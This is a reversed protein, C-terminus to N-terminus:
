IWSSLWMRSLWDQYPILAGTWVTYFYAASLLVVFAVILALLALADQVPSALGPWAPDGEHASVPPSSSWAALSTDPKVQGWCVGIAWALMLAVFPAFAVTYFTFMTRDPYAFWPVYMSLYGCLVLGIRWDGWRAVVWLALVLAPVALWWLLPNGLAVVNRVCEGGSCTGAFRDYYFSTPRLQFLWGLPHSQYNHPTSLGNHFEWVQVHYRWLDSLVSWPGTSPGGAAASAGHGWARPHLMWGTWSAIYVLVATPVMAVFAVPVDTVLAGRAARPHGLRRRESWERLAVFLGLVALAYIGSWKVSCALGLAVGAVVLWWRPGSRPGFGIPAGASEEVWAGMRRALRPGAMRQDKVVALFTALVFTSLFIDLLSTRSLVLHIGDTALFLGALATVAPSRFLNWALRCVLFVGITGAVVASIRWGVPNDAGLAQMGVGILWKGTPPHVIYSGQPSLMSFDGRAFAADSGAPWTGEYGLHILSYADKVYYTEDFILTPIRDLGLLRLVLALATALATAIWGAVPSVPLRSWWRRPPGALSPAHCVETDDARANGTSADRAPAEADVPPTVDGETSAPQTVPPAGLPPLPEPDGTGDAKGPDPPSAPVLDSELRHADM